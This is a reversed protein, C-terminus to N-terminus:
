TDAQDAGPGDWMGDVLGWDLATTLGIPLGSLALFETRWRGIRRPLSVTGGAGPVLGMALEPLSVALDSCALVSGAFAPLEIGAGVCAGHLRVEVSGTTRHLSRGVSQTVRIHHARVVDPTTGFEDLDGGSCFAPGQGTILIRRISRDLQPLQLAALLADRLDHSFANRRAPRNLSVHLQDGDRDLLVPEASSLPVPRRSRGDRWRRFEPGALLMSYAFSEAALGTEVDAQETVRLVDRLALAALPSAAATSEISRLASRPEPVSVCTPPLDAAWCEPGMLTLSLQEVLPSQGAEGADALGILIRSREVTLREAAAQAISPDLQHRRLDVFALPGLPTGQRDFRLAAAGDAVDRVTLLPASGTSM